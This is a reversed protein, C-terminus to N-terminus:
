EDNLKEYDLYLLKTICECLVLYRAASSENMGVHRQIIDNLAMYLNLATVNQSFDKIEAMVEDSSLKPM